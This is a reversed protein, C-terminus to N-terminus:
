VLDPLPGRHVSADDGFHDVDAGMAQLCSTWLNHVSESSDYQDLGTQNINNIAHPNYNISRGTRFHGGASGAMLVPLNRGIHRSGNSFESTMVLLSNDLVTRDGELFTSDDLGEIIQRLIGMRWLRNDRIEDLWADARHSEPGTPGVDRALHHLAHGLDVGTPNGAPTWSTIIDSIELAAVHTLGCRIAAVLIQAHLPAVQQAERDGVDAIMSPPVCMASQELGQLEQEIQRLHALHADITVVDRSSVRNRFRAFGERVGDLISLRRTRRQEIAPDPMDGTVGEFLRDFAARPSVEGSDSQGAGQYYPTGYQHGRVLLHIRDFPAPQTSALHEAVAFDISRGTATPNEGSENPDRAVLVSTNTTRHGTMSCRNDVGQLINIKSTWDALPQHLEGLVLNEGGMAPAWLDLGHHNGTGDEIRWRSSFNNTNSITGGHSFFTIFRKTATDQAFVHGHTYELLPLALATGGLTRLFARRGSHKGSSHKASGM